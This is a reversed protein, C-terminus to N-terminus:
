QPLQGKDRSQQLLWRATSKDCIIIVKDDLVTFDNAGRTQSLDPLKLAAKVPEPNKSKKM